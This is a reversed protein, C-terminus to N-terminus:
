GLVSRFLDTSVICLDILSRQGFSDRCWTYKHVDGHQFFTNMICWTNNCCVQLLIIRNDNVMTPWDCRKM